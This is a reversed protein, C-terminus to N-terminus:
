RSINQKDRVYHTLTLQQKFESIRNNAIDCYKPELEMGIFNRNTELCAIATTGSGIFPDLILDNENSHIEILHRLLSLPKETPHNTEGYGSSNSTKYFNHM